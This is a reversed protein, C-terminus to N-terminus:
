RHDRRTGPRGRGRHRGAGTGGPSVPFRPAQRDAHPGRRCPCATAHSHKGDIGSRGPGGAGALLQRAMVVRQVQNTGEPSASLLLPVTGLKNVAPILSSSACARAVEEIIIVAALADVGEGGHAEPIHAAHLRAGTLADLAEAPFRAAANVEAAFPAIKAEALDRVTRRLLQHEEPLDYM